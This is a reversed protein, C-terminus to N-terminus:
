LVQTKVTKSQKEFTLSKLSKRSQARHEKSESFDAGTWFDIVVVKGEESGIEIVSDYQEFSWYLGSPPREGNPGMIALNWTIDQGGCERIIELASAHSMGLSLTSADATQQSQDSRESTCNPHVLLLVILFLMQYKM